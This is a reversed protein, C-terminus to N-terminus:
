FKWLWVFNTTNLAQTNNADASHGLLCQVHGWCGLRLTHDATMKMIASYTVPFVSCNQVWPRPKSERFPYGKRVCKRNQTVALFNSQFSRGDPKTKLPGDLPGSAKVGGGGLRLM